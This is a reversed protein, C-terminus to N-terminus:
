ILYSEAILPQTTKENIQVIINILLANLSVNTYILADKNKYELEVDEVTKNNITKVDLVPLYNEDPKMELILIENEKTKDLLDIVDQLSVLAVINPADYYDNITEIAENSNNAFIVKQEIHNGFVLNAIFVNNLNHTM